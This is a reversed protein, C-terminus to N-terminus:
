ENLRTKIFLFEKSQSFINAFDVIGTDKMITESEALSDKEKDSDYLTGAGICELMWTAPNKKSSSEHLKTCTPISEFYKVVFSAEIGIDGFYVIQGGKKLLLLEDFAYFVSPSPQHITCVVTRGSNAITRINQVVREASGSDLGTTPEDLFMISPNAALEFAISVRKRQEFSM